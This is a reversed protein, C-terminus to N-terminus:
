PSALPLQQQVQAVEGSSMMLQWQQQLQLYLADDIAQRSFSFYVPNDHFVFLKRYQMSLEEQRLLEDVVAEDELSAIVRGSVLMALKQQNGSAAFLRQQLQPNDQLLQQWQPGYYAGEAISIAGEVELLQPFTTVSDAISRRGLVVMREYHHPGVFYSHRQREATESMGVMIDLQGDELMKMARGAPLAIPQATCNVKQLLRDLLAYFQQSVQTDSHSGAANHQRESEVRVSFQCTATAEAFGCSSFFFLLSLLGSMKFSQM